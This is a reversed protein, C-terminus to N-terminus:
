KPIDFINESSFKSLFTKTAILYGTILLGNWVGFFSVRVVRYHRYITLTIHFLFVTIRSVVNPFAWKAMPKARMKMWPVYTSRVLNGCQNCRVVRAPLTEGSRELLPAVGAAISLHLEELYNDAWSWNRSKSGASEDSHISWRSYLNLYLVACTVASASSM